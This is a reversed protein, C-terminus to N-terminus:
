VYSVHCVNKILQQMAVNALNCCLTKLDNIEKQFELTKSDVELFVIEHAHPVSINNSAASHVRTHQIHSLWGGTLYCSLNYNFVIM